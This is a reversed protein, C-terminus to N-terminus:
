LRQQSEEEEVNIVPAPQSQSDLFTANISDESPLSPLIPRSMSSSPSTKPHSAGSIDFVGDRARLDLDFVQSVNMVQHPEEGPRDQHKWFMTNERSTSEIAENLEERSRKRLKLTVSVCVNMQYSQGDALKFEPSAPSGSPTVPQAAMVAFTEAHRCNLASQMSDPALHCGTQLSDEHSLRLYVCTDCYFTTQLCCLLDFFLLLFVLLLFIFLCRM